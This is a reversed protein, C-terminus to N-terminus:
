ALLPSVSALDESLSTLKRVRRRRVITDNVELNLRLAKRYYVEESVLQQTLGDLEQETPPRRM